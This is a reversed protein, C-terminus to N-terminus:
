PHEGGFYIEVGGKNCPRRSEDTIEQMGRPQLHERNAGVSVQAPIAVHDIPWPSGSGFVHCISAQSLRTTTGSTTTTNGTAKGTTMTLNKQSRSVSQSSQLLNRRLHSQCRGISIPLM